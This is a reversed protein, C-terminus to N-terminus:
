SQITLDIINKIVLQNSTGDSTKLILKNSHYGNIEGKLNIISGNKYYLIKVKKNQSLALKLNKDMEHLQQEDLVPKCINNDRELLEELKKRHETLMLSSWKINGRDKIVIM